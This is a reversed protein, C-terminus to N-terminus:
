YSSLFQNCTNLHDTIQTQNDNSGFIRELVCIQSYFERSLKKENAGSDRSAEWVKTDCPGHNSETSQSKGPTAEFEARQM